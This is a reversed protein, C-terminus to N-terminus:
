QRAEVGAAAEILAEYWLAIPSGTHLGAKQFQEFVANHWTDWDPHKAEMEKRIWYLLNFESNNKAPDQSYIVKVSPRGYLYESARKYIAVVDASYAGDPVSDFSVAGVGLRNPGDYNAPPDPEPDPGPDPEPQGGDDGEWDVITQIVEFQKVRQDADLVLVQVRVIGKWDIPPDVIFDTGYETQIQKVVPDPFPNLILWRVQDGPKTECKYHIAEGNGVTAPGSVMQGIVAVPLALAFLFSQIIKM